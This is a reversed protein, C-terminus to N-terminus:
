CILMISASLGVERVVYGAKVALHDMGATPLYSRRPSPGLQRKKIDNKKEGPGSATSDIEYVLWPFHIFIHM